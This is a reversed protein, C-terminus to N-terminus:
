RQPNKLTEKAGHKERVGFHGMLIDRENSKWKAWARVWGFKEKRNRNGWRGM